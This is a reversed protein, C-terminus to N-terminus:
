IFMFEQGMLTNIYGTYTIIRKTIKALDASDPEKNTSTFNYNNNYNNSM